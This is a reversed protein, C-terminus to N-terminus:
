LREKKNSGKAHKGREGVKRGAGAAAVGAGRGTSQRKVCYYICTDDNERKRAIGPLNYFNIRSGKEERENDAYM